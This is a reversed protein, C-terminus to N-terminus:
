LLIINKKKFLLDTAIYLNFLDYYINHEKVFWNILENIIIRKFNTNNISYGSISWLIVNISLFKKM